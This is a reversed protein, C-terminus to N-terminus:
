RAMVWSLPGSVTNHEVIRDQFPLNMVLDRTPLVFFPILLLTWWGTRNQDHARRAFLAFLPVTFMLAILRDAIFSAHPSLLGAFSLQGSVLSVLVFALWWWGLETRRSRGTFDFTGRITKLLLHANAIPDRVAM